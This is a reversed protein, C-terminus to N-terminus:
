SSKIFSFGKDVEDFVFLTKDPVIKDLVKGLFNNLYVFSSEGHSKDKAQFGGSDFFSMADFATQMDSGSDVVSDLFFIKEYNHEVSINKSLERFDSSRLTIEELDNKYGRLAQFLSSKGCGNDGVVVEPTVLNFEFVEGSKFLRFDKEITIKIM